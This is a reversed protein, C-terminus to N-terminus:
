SQARFEMGEGSRSISDEMRAQSANDKYSLDQTTHSMTGALLGKRAQDNQHQGRYRPGM